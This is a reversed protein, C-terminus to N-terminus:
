QPNSFRKLAERDLEIGLGPGQPDGPLGRRRDHVARTVIEEIYPAPTLYEVYRAVPCRPRWSCIPRWASRRTGATRSSAARQPRLGDLRDPAIRDPRREQHLRAPHHRGGPARDVPHVVAAAHASRRQRDAGALSRTLEIYGEIDDPPLRKRSGSSTTTPWCRAGDERAWKYGHPWFQESGGADVM